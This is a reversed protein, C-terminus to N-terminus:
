IASNNSVTNLFNSFTWSPYTPATKKDKCEMTLYERSVVGHKIIREIATSSSMGDSALIYSNVCNAVKERREQSLIHAVPSNSPDPYALLATIDIFSEKYKPNMYFKLFEVENVFAVADAASIRAIEIFQQSFLQFYVDVEEPTSNRCYSIAEQLAGSCILTTLKKRAEISRVGQLTISSSWSGKPKDIIPDVSEMVMDGEDDMVAGALGAIVGGENKTSNYVKNKSTPEPAVQSQSPICSALFTSATEVYCNHVLFEYIISQQIEPQPAEINSLNIAENAIEPKTEEVM